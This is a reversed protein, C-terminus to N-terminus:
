FIEPEEVSYNVVAVTSCVGMQGALLCVGWLLPTRWRSRFLPDNQAEEIGYISTPTHFPIQQMAM